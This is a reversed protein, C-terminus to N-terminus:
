KLKYKHYKIEELLGIKLLEKNYASITKKYIGVTESIQKATPM